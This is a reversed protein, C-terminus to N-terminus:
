YCGPYADGTSHKQVDDVFHLNCTMLKKIKEMNVFLVNIHLAYSLNEQLLKRKSNKLELGMGQTSCNQLVNQIISIAALQPSM